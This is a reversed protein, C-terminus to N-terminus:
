PKSRWQNSRQLIQFTWLRWNGWLGAEATTQIQTPLPGRPTLRPFKQCQKRGAILPQAVGNLLTGPFHAYPTAIVVAESACSFSRVLEFGGAGCRTEDNGVRRGLCNLRYFCANRASLWPTQRRRHWVKNGKRPYPQLVQRPKM